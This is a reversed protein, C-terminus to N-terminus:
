SLYFLIEVSLNILYVKKSVALTQQSKHSKCSCILQLECNTYFHPAISIFNMLDCLLHMLNLQIFNFRSLINSFGQSFLSIM